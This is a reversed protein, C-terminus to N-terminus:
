SQRAQWEGYVRAAAIHRQRHWRLNLRSLQFVLADRTAGSASGSKLFALMQERADRPHFLFTKGFLVAPGCAIVRGELIDGLAFGITSRRESVDFRAGGILDRVSIRGPEVHEV